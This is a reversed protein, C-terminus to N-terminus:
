NTLVWLTCQPLKGGSACKGDSDHSFHSYRLHGQHSRFMHWEFGFSTMKVSGSHWFISFLVNKFTDPHLFALAIIKKNKLYKQYFIEVCYLVTVKLCTRTRWPWMVRYMVKRKRIEPELSAHAIIKRTKCINQILFRLYICYLVIVKSRSRTHWPWM